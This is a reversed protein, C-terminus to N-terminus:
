QAMEALKIFRALMTCVEARSANDGPAFCNGNRGLIIKAGCLANVADKAWGSIQASDTFSQAPATGELVPKEMQQAYRYMIVALEQRTIPADPSFTDEGTGNVVGAEKAWAVYPAYYRDPAVDAFGTDGVPSEDVGAWRGLITVMMGRTLATDPSFSDEDVGKVLGMASIPLVYSKAWHGELDGFRNKVYILSYNSLHCTNIVMEGAAEDYESNFLVQVEGNEAIYCGQLGDATEGSGLEYPIRLTLEGGNFTSVKQKDVLVEFSYVPKNKLNAQNEESLEPVEATKKLVIEVNKGASNEPIAENLAALATADMTLKATDGKSDAQSTLELTKLEGSEMLKSV